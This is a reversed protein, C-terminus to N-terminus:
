SGAERRTESLVWFYLPARSPASEILEARVFRGVIPTATSCRVETGTPPPDGINAFLLPAGDLLLVNANADKIVITKGASTLVGIGGAKLWDPGALQLTVADNM